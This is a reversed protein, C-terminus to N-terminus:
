SNLTLTFPFPLKVQLERTGDSPQGSPPGPSLLRSEVEVQRTAWTRGPLAELGSQAEDKFLTKVTCVPDLCGWVRTAPGENVVKLAPNEPFWYASLYTARFPM